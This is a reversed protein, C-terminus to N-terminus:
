LINHISHLRLQSARHPAKTKMKVECRYTIWYREDKSTDSANCENLDKAKPFAIQWVCLRGNLIKISQREPSLQKKQQRNEQLRLSLYSFDPSASGAKSRLSAEGSFQFWDCDVTGVGRLANM